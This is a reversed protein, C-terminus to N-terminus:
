AVLVAELAQAPTLIKLGEVLGPQVTLLDQDGTVLWTAQAALATQVFIDDGIDATPGRSYRQQALHPPIDIWLGITRADHLLSRRDDLNLYRDFKPKWLRSEFETFTTTSWVPTAEAFVYRVLLAPPGTKTLAASILVNTDLVVRLRTPNTLAKSKGEAKM